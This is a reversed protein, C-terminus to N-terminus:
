PEVADQGRTGVRGERGGALLGEIAMIHGALCDVELLGGGGLHVVDGILQAPVRKVMARGVGVKDGPQM